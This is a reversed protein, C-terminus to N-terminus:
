NKKFNLKEGIRLMCFLTYVSSRMFENAYLINIWIKNTTNEEKCISKDIKHVRMVNVGLCMLFLWLFNIDCWLNSSRACMFYIIINKQYKRVFLNSMLTAPMCFCIVLLDAFALNAIFLNTVTRMRPVRFIVQIVLLNGILGVLFVLVYAFM